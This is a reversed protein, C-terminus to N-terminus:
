FREPVSRLYADAVNLSLIGRPLARLNSTV